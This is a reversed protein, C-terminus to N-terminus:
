PAAKLSERAQAIRQKLHNALYDDPVTALALEVSKEARGLWEAAEATKQEAALASALAFQVDALATLTSIAEPYRERQRQLEDAATRFSAVAKPLDGAIRAAKGELELIRGAIRRIEFESVSTKDVAAVDAAVSELTRRMGEVDRAIVQYDALALRASILWMRAATRDDPESLRLYNESHTVRAEAHKLLSEVDGAAAAAGAARGEIMAAARRVYPDSPHEALLRVVEGAARSEIERRRAADTEVDATELKLKIRETALFVDEPFVASLRDLEDRSRKAAAAAATRDGNRWLTLRLIDLATVYQRAATASDPRLEVLKRRLDVSDAVTALTLGAAGPIEYSENRVRDVIRDLADQTLNLAAGTRRQAEALSANTRVLEDNATKAEDYARELMALGIAAGVLSLCITALATAQWPRRRAWKIGKAWPSLPRATIPEDRLFRELDDALAAASSYRHSPKKELCKLSITELDKPVTKVLSRPVVPEDAVVMMLTQVVEPADFPPRGTLMEYLIAGLAYVDAAPGIASVAGLAQEPAMYAATGLVDGSQTLGAGATLQKALGFDAIKLRAADFDHVAQAPLDAGDGASELLVNGPKLDRHVIGQRHAYDIARALAAVIQAATRGALVRGTLFAALTGGAVFEMVLFPPDHDARFEFLQAINPHRLAAVAKAEDAFRRLTEDTDPDLLCKLAVRRGLQRDRAAYVRGMGGRGVLREVEYGPFEPVREVGAGVAGTLPSAGALTSPALDVDSLHADDAGAAPRADTPRALTEPESANEDPNPM